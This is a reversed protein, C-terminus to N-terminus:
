RLPLRYRLDTPPHTKRGGDPRWGLREYFARARQDTELVWLSAACAGSKRLSDIAASLLSQGIGTRQRAPHVYLRHIEGTQEPDQDRDDCPGYQCLGVIQGDRRATLVEGGRATQVEVVEGWDRVVHAALRASYWAEAARCRYTEDWTGHHLDRLAIADALGAAVITTQIVKEVEISDDKKHAEWEPRALHWTCDIGVEAPAKPRDAKEEILRFGLRRPVGESASNAKDHHIEVRDVQPISFAAETLMAAAKTALGRRLFRTGIWYGLELTNPGRRRHLGASGVIEGALLIALLVDGGGEWEKEWSSLMAHREQPPKPEQAMWAMWPRLHDASDAIAQEQLAVDDIEWRRLLLGDAEIRQPLRGM